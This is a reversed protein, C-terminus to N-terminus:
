KSSNALFSAKFQIFDITNKQFFNNIEEFTRDQSFSDPDLGDPFTCISVNMGANLIMDVGRLTADVGAKDSDYLMTINTTLRRIVTIQDITLSTGSSSVVNKIGKQFLQIVDTYGEM